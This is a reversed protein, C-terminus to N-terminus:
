FNDLEFFKSFMDISSIKPLFGTLDFGSSKSLFKFFLTTITVPAPPEIPLPQAKM